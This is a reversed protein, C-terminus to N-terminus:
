FSMPVIWNRALDPLQLLSPFEGNKAGDVIPTPWWATEPLQFFVLDCSVVSIMYSVLHTGKRAGIAGGIPRLVGLGLDIYRRSSSVSGIGRVFRDSRVM